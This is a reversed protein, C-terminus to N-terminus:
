LRIEDKRYSYEYVNDSLVESPHVESTNVNKVMDTLVKKSYERNKPIVILEHVSSPIIYLGKKQEKAFARFVDKYLLVAAGFNRNNNTFVFMPMDASCDNMMTIDERSEEWQSGKKLLENIVDTIRNISVGLLRRTNVYAIDYLEDEDIKWMELYSKRVTLTLNYSEYEKLVVYYVVELDLFPKHALDTLHKENLKRNILKFVIKDRVKDFDCIDSADIDIKEKNTRYAEIINLIIDSIDAGNRYDEYFSELYITPSINCNNEMIVLGDYEMDNNKVVHELTVKVEEEKGLIEKVQEKIYTIFEGYEM